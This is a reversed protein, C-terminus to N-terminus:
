NRLSNRSHRRCPLFYPQDPSIFTVSPDHIEKGSLPGSGVAPLGESVKQPDSILSELSPPVPIHGHM